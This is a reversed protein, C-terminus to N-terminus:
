CEGDDDDVEVGGGVALRRLLRTLEGRVQVPNTGAVGGLRNTGGM